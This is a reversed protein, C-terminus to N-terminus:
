CAALAAADAALLTTFLPRRATIDGLPVVLLLGTAFGLQTATIIFGAASQSTGLEAAITHLLPQAYYVNAITVGVVLALLRVLGRPLAVRVGIKRFARLM